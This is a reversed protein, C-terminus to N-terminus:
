KKAIVTLCQYNILYVWTALKNLFEPTAVVEFKDEDRFLVGFSTSEFTSHSIANRIHRVYDCKILKLALQSIPKRNKSTEKLIKLLPGEKMYVLSIYLRFLLSGQIKLLQSTPVPLNGPFPIEYNLQKEMKPDLASALYYWFIGNTLHERESDSFESLSDNIENMFNADTLSDAIKELLDDCEKHKRVITSDNVIRDILQLDSDFNVNNSLETVNLGNPPGENEVGFTSYYKRLANGIVDSNM